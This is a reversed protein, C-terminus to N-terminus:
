MDTFNTKWLMILCDIGGTAFCSGDSNFKCTNVSGEHGNLTYLPRGEMVDVILVKGDKSSCMFYCAQPHWSVYNTVSNQHVTYHQQLKKNRMDYVRVSGSDMAVAIAYNNLHVDLYTPNSKPSMFIHECQGSRVDWIRVTRDEASSIIYDGKPSYKACRVWNNHGVFSCLFQQKLADWVKVSKDNAGTLLQCYDQPSFNVCNVSSTHAKFATVGGKVSPVWLRVTKDKSSSALWKGDHSFSLGTVKDTHGSFSYSRIQEKINWLIIDHDESSSAFHSTEPHFAIDTIAKKHGRLSKILCPDDARGESM